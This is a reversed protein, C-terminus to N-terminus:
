LTREVDEKAKPTDDGGTSDVQRNFKNQYNIQPIKGVVGTDAQMKNINASLNNSKSKNETIAGSPNIKPFEKPYHIVSDKLSSSNSLDYKGGDYSINENSINGQFLRIKKFKSGATMDGYDQSSSQNILTEQEDMDSMHYEEIDNVEIDIHSQAQSEDGFYVSAPSKISEDRVYIAPEMERSELQNSFGSKMEELQRFIIAGRFKCQKTKLEPDLSTVM